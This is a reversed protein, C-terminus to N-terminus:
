QFHEKFCASTLNMLPNKRKMRLWFQTRLKPWVLLSLDPMKALSWLCFETMRSLFPRIMPMLWDSIQTPLLGSVPLFRAVTTQTSPRLCAILLSHPSSMHLARLFTFILLFFPLSDSEFLAGRGIALDNAARM